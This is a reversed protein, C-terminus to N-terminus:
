VKDFKHTTDLEGTGISKYSDWEPGVEARFPNGMQAGTPNTWPVWRPRFHASGVSGVTPGLLVWVPGFHALGFQGSIKWILGM